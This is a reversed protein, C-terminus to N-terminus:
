REKITKLNAKCWNRVDNEKYAIGIRGITEFPIGQLRWFYLTKRNVGLLESMDKESFLIKM